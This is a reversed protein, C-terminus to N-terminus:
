WVNELKGNDKDMVFVFGSKNFYVLMDKGKYLILLVEYVVDFDWVDNLIEQCYWKIKGIKLDFVLVLVIYLNDGMWEDCYYDLVVNSIGIYIMDSCLDYIGLMWVSGGVLKCSKGLWSKLDDKLIEFIWVCKGIDVNVVFIKGIIFQDGGIIGGFLIDGVLQFLVLFFVGYEDKFNSLQIFWVEKGIKQDFVVFCGDFMGVFVKGCGVM